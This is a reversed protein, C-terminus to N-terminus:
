LLATSTTLKNIYQASVPPNFTIDFIILFGPCRLLENILPVRSPFQFRNSAELYKSGRSCVLWGDHLRVCWTAGVKM